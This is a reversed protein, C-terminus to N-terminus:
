HYRLKSRTDAGKNKILTQYVSAPRSCPCSVNDVSKISHIAKNDYEVDRLLNSM